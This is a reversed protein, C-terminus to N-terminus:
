LLKSHYKSCTQSAYLAEPWMDKMSDKIMQVGYYPQFLCHLVAEAFCWLARDGAHSPHRGAKTRVEATSGVSIHVEVSRKPVGVPM